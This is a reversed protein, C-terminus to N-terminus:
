SYYEKLTDWKKSRTLLIDQWILKCSVESAGQNDGEDVNMKLHPCNEVHHNKKTLYKFTRLRERNENVPTINEKDSHAINELFSTWLHETNGGVGRIDYVSWVSPAKADLNREHTKNVPFWQDRFFEVLNIFRKMLEKKKDKSMNACLTGEITCIKHHLIDRVLDLADDDYPIFLDFYPLDINLENGQVSHKRISSKIDEKKIPEFDPLSGIYVRLPTSKSPQGIKILHAVIVNPKTSTNTMPPIEHISLIGSDESFLLKFGKSEVSCVQGLYTHTPKYSLLNEPSNNLFESAIKMYLFDICVFSNTIRKYFADFQDELSDETINIGIPNGDHIVESTITHLHDIYPM